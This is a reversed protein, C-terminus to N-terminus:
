NFIVRQRGGYLTESQYSALVKSAPMRCRVETGGHNLRVIQPADHLMEVGEAAATLNQTIFVYWDSFVLTRYESPIM